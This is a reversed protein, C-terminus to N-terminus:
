NGLINKGMAQIIMTRDYYTYVRDIQKAENFHISFNMRLKTSGTIFVIESSFYCFVFVGTLDSYPLANKAIVPIEL